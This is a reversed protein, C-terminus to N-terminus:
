KIEASELATILFDTSDHRLKLLKDVICKGDSFVKNYDIERMEPIIGDPIIRDTLNLQELLSNIRNESKQGNSIFYFSKRFVISLAVGHFSTTFVCFSNRLANLFEIPSYWWKYRIPNFFYKLGIRSVPEVIRLNNMKAFECASNEFFKTNLVKYVFLYKYKPTILNTINYFFIENVLLTPDLVLICKKNIIENLHNRLGNERVSIYYYSKLIDALEKKDLEDEFSGASAAYAIKKKHGLGTFYNIDGDTLNLNWVQDSGVIVCDEEKLNSIPILSLNQVIFKSFKIKRFQKFPLLFLNCLNKGIYKIISNGCKSLSIYAIVSHAKRIGSCSYDLIGVNYGLSKLTQQLAFAQLVAGYNLAEHFTLIALKM